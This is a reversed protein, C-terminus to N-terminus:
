IKINKKIKNLTYIYDELNELDQTISIYNKDSINHSRSIGIVQYRHKLFKKAVARGIGKSSGTILITKKKNM